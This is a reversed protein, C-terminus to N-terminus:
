ARASPVHAVFVATTAHHLVYHSVSGLLSAVVGAGRAGLVIADYDQTAAHAVIQPGPKGRLLLLRVSIESPIRRLAEQLMREGDADFETQSPWPTSAVAPWRAAEAAVDAVVTVLTLRARDLGAATVAATLALEASASRDLAVLLHRFHLQAVTSLRDEAAGSLDGIDSLEVDERPPVPAGDTM